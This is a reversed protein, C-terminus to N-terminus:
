PRAKGPAAYTNVFLAGEAREALLVALAKGTYTEELELGSGRAAGVAATGSESPEGYEGDAVVVRLRVRGREVRREGLIRLAGFARRWIRWRWGAVASAVRVAVVECDARRLMLGALLGSATTGTGLATYIRSPVEDLELAANCYGLAGLASAGGPPIVRTGPRWWRLAAIAAGGAGGVEVVRAAADDLAARAPGPHGWRVIVADTDLGVKRGLVATALAHNASLSSFTLLRKAPLALLPELCRAKNGGILDDRKVFVRLGAITHEEVPTPRV